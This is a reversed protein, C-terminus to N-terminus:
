DLDGRILKRLLAQLQKREAADLPRLLDLEAAAAVEGLRALKAKGAPALRVAHRRRDVPHDDRVVLGRAELDDLIPVVNRPDVGVAGALQRQTTAGASGLIMLVSYAALTLEQSRLAEAFRRRSESGVRALLYGASKLLERPEKPMSM